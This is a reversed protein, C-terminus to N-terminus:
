RAIVTNVDPRDIAAGGNSFLGFRTTTTTNSQQQPARIYTFVSAVTSADGAIVLVSIGADQAAITLNQTYDGTGNDTISTTNLAGRVTVTGTGTFCVCAQIGNLPRGGLTEVGDVILKSM